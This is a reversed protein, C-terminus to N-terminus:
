DMSISSRDLGELYETAAVAKFFEEAAMDLIKGIENQVYANIIDELCNEFYEDSKVTRYLIVYGSDTGTNIEIVESTEFSSLAFAADTMEGYYSRNLNHKAILLGNKLDAAELTVSIMYNGVEDEGNKTAVTDRIEEARTASIYDKPLFARLVRVCESSEYFALIDEETYKLAGIGVAGLQGNDIDGAYYANIANLALSYRILLVSVSYNLNMEKLSALYKSYDGGFGLLTTTGANGGEVSVKIYKQIDKEFDKSYVDIGIDEAVKFASYIEAARQAVLEDAIKIYKDKEDGTWVSPDGGDISDKINLFLARYLEYRIDYKNKGVSITMVVRKEEDTSEVAPYDKDGCSVLSFLTILCLLLAITKKM